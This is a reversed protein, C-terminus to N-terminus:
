NRFTFIPSFGCTHPKRPTPEMKLAKAPDELGVSQLLCRHQIWGMNSGDGKSYLSTGFM